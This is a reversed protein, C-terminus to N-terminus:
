SSAEVRFSKSETMALRLAPLSGLANALIEARAAALEDNPQGNYRHRASPEASVRDITVRNLVAIAEDRRRARDLLYALQLQLSQDGTEDIGQRLLAEARARARNQLELDALQQYAILRMWTPGDSGIVSRLLDAARGSDGLRRLNVGLRLRGHPDRPQLAVLREFLPLAHRYQGAKERGIADRLIALANDPQLELAVGTVGLAALLQAGRRSGEAGGRKAYSQVREAVFARNQAVSWAGGEAQYLDDALFHLYLVPYLSEPSERALEDAIKGQAERLTGLAKNRSM